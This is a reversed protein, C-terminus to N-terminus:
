LCSLLLWRGRDATGYRRAGGAAGVLEADAQRDMASAHSMRADGAFGRRKRRPLPDEILQTVVQRQWIREAVGGPLARNLSDRQSVEATEYVPGSADKIGETVVAVAWGQKRVVRDIDGIFRDVDFLREPLYILIRRM